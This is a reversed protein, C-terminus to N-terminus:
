RTWYYFFRHSKWLTKLLELLVCRADSCKKDCFSCSAQNKRVSFRISIILSVIRIPAVFTIGLMCDIMWLFCSWGEWQTYCYKNFFVGVHNFLFYILFSLFILVTLLFFYCDSFYHFSSFFFWLFFLVKSFLVSRFLLVSFEIFIFFRYKRVFWCFIYKQDANREILFFSRHSGSCYKPWGQDLSRSSRSKLVRISARIRTEM